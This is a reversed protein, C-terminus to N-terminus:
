KKRTFLKIFFSIMWIIQAMYMLMLLFGFFSIEISKNDYYRKPSSWFFNVANNSTEWSIHIDSMWFMAKSNWISNWVVQRTEWFTFQARGRGNNIWSSSLGTDFKVDYKGEWQSYRDLDNQQSHTELAIYSNFQNV